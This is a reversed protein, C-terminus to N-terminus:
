KQLMLSQLREKLDQDHQKRQEKISSLRLVRLCQEETTGVRYGQEVLREVEGTEALQQQAQWQDVLAQIDEATAKDPRLLNCAVEWRGNSYPLTLAEVGKLGGDRERVLRTLSQARKKSCQSTLRINYNEAFGEPAGVTAVELPAAAAAPPPPAQHTSGTLDTTPELLLGGSTFFNTRERRIIALPTTEPHAHGYYYVQVQLESLRQGITRAAWASATLPQFVASSTSHATPQSTSTVTVTDTDTDPQINQYDSDSSTALPMVTVHDVLGVFPHHSAQDNNNDDALENAMEKRLVQIAQSALHSAVSAVNEATGALHFSSRNYVPDAYAHVIAASSFTTTETNSDLEIPKSNGGALETCHEQAQQLLNLMLPVHHPKGGASVYVNCAVLSQSFRSAALAAATLAVM